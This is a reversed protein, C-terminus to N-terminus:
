ALMVSRHEPSQEVAEVDKSIAQVIVCQNLKAMSHARVHAYSRPIPRAVHLRHEPGQM